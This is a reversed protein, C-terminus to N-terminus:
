TLQSCLSRPQEKNMNFPVLILKLVVINACDAITIGIAMKVLLSTTRFNVRSFSGCHMENLFGLSCMKFNGISHVINLIHM